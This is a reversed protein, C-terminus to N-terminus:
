NPIYGQENTHSTNDASAGKSDTPKLPTKLFFFTSEATSLTNDEYRFHNKDETKM